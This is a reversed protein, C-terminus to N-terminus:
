EVEKEARVEKELQYMRNYKQKLDSFQYASLKMIDHKEMSNFLRKLSDLENQKFTPM